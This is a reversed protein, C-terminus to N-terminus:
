ELLRRYARLSAERNPQMEEGEFTRALLRYVEPLAPGLMLANFLYKRAMEANAASARPRGTDGGFALLKNIPAAHIFARVFDMATYPNMAWVWSMEAWVNRFHKALAVLEREYPYAAHMLVFRAEPYEKLLPCLHGSAIYDTVMGDLGCHYGTHMKFPLHYRM